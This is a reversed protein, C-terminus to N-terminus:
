RHLITPEAAAQQNGGGLVYQDSDRHMEANNHIDTEQLWLNIGLVFLNYKTLSLIQLYAFNEGISGYCKFGLIKSTQWQRIQTVYDSVPRDKMPRFYINM